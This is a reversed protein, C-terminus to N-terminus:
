KHIVKIYKEGKKIEISKIDKFTRYEGEAQLEVTAPNTFELIDDTTPTGPTRTFIAAVMLKTLRWLNTLRCNESRFVKPKLYDDGGKMVRCMSKGSLACYDSIGKATKKGNLTFEPIFVKKHRNKFYWKALALYSRWSSKHGKQMSKRFKPEDFLECAEATMGITVYCTAYRFFKGDVIIELPYLKKVTSESSLVDALTKTGLTRSLDNFNGYPLVALTADKGSKIIGNSAIIGTADGGASVVLDGDKIIKAFKDANQDVDTNEVKYKGIIYGKLNKAPTLIEKEVDIFRSSRPNYVIILRQM